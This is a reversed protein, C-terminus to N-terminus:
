CTCLTDPIARATRTAGADFRDTTQMNSMEGRFNCGEDVIKEGLSAGLHYGWLRKCPEAAARPIGDFDDHGRIAIQKGADAAGGAATGTVFLEDAFQAETAAALTTEQELLKGAEGRAAGQDLGIAVVPAKGPGSCRAGAQYGAPEVQVAVAETKDTGGVIDASAAPLIAGV